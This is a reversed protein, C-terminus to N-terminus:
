QQSSSPGGELLKVQKSSELLDSGGKLLPMSSSRSLITKTKQQSVLASTSRSAKIRRVSPKRASQSAVTNLHTLILRQLPHFVQMLKQLPHFV